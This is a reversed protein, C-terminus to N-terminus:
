LWLQEARRVRSTARVPPEFKLCPILNFMHCRRGGSSAFCLCELGSSAAIPNAPRCTASELNFSLCRVASRWTRPATMERGAQAAVRYRPQYFSSLRCERQVWGVSGAEAWISSSTACGERKKDQSPFVAIGQTSPIRERAFVGLLLLSPDLSAGSLRLPPSFLGLTRCGVCGWILAGTGQHGSACSCFAM